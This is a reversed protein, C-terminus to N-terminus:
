DEEMADRIARDMGARLRAAWMSEERAEVTRGLRAWCESMIVAIRANELGLERAKRAAALARPVDGARLAEEARRVQRFASDPASDDPIDILPPSGSAPRERLRFVLTNDGVFFPELRRSWFDLKEKEDLGRVRRPAALTMRRSEWRQYLLYRVGERRMRRELGEATNESESWRDLNPTKWKFDVLVPARLPYAQFVGHALVRDGPRLDREIARYAAFADRDFYYHRALRADRSEAGFAAPWPADTRAQAVFATWIALAWSLGFAWRAGRPNLRFARTWAIGAFAILALGPAAAHRLSTAFFLWAGLSAFTFIALARGTRERFAALAWPMAAWVLPSYPVGVQNHPTFLARALNQALRIPNWSGPSGTDAWLLREMGPDYGGSGSGFWGILLPYVPNGHALLNKFVWPAIPLIFFLLAAGIAERSLRPRVLTGGVAALGAIALVGTYKVALSCGALFLASGFRVEDARGGKGMGALCALASLAFAALFGEVYGFTHIFLFFGSAIMATIAWPAAGPIPRLLTRLAMVSLVLAAVLGIRALAEGGMSQLGALLIDTLKPLDGTHDTWRLPLWGTRAVERAFRSHDLVADWALPPSLYEPAWLLFFPIGALYMWPESSRPRRAWVERWAGVGEPVAVGMTLALIPGMLVGNVALGFCCGSFLVLTAAFSPLTRESAPLRALLIRGLWRAWGSWAVAVLVAVCLAGFKLTGRRALGSFDWETDKLLRADFRLGEPGGLYLVLGLLLISIATKKLASRASPAPRKMSLGGKWLIIRM